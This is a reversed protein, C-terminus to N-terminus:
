RRFRESFNVNGVTGLAAFRDRIGDSEINLAQKKKKLERMDKILEVRREGLKALDKDFEENRRQLEISKLWVERYKIQLLHDDRM